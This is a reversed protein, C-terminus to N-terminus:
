NKPPKKQRQSAFNGGRGDFGRYYLPSYGRRDRPLGPNSERDPLQFKKKEIRVTFQPLSALSVSAFTCCKVGFISNKKANQYLDQIQLLPPHWKDINCTPEPWPWPWPHGWGIGCGSTPHSVGPRVSTVDALEQWTFCRKSQYDIEKLCENERYTIWHTLRVIGFVQQVGATDGDLSAHGDVVVPILVANSPMVRSTIM